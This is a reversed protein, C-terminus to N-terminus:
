RARAGLRGMARLRCARGRPGIGEVAGVITHRVPKFGVLGLINREFSRLSHAGYFWRYVFAPMGM